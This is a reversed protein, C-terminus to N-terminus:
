LLRLHLLRRLAAELRETELEKFPDAAEATIRATQANAKAEGHGLASARGTATRRRGADRRNDGHSSKLAPKAFRSNSCRQFCLRSCRRTKAITPGSRSSMQTSRCIISPSMIYSIDNGRTAPPWKGGDDQALTARTSPKDQAQGFSDRVAMCVGVIALESEIVISCGGRATNTRREPHRLPASRAAGSSASDLRVLFSVCSQISGFSTGRAAARRTQVRMMKVLM